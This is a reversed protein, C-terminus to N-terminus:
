RSQRAAADIEERALARIEAETWVSGGDADGLLRRITDGYNTEHPKREERLRDRLSESLEITTKSM